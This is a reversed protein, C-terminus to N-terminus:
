NIIRVVSKDADLAIEDGTQINQTATRTGVVCPIALERAIIATHSLIGGEDTVIGSAKQCALLMRPQTSETILIAGQPMQQILEDINTATLSIKYAVGAVKGPSATTGHLEDVQKPSPNYLKAFTNSAENGVLMRTENNDKQLLFAHQRQTLDDVETGNIVEDITMFEADPGSSNIAQSHVLETLNICSNIFDLRLRGIDEILKADNVIDLESTTFEETKFYIKYADSLLDAAIRLNEIRPTRDLRASRSMIKNAESLLNAFFEPNRLQKAGVDGLQRYEDSGVFGKLGGNDYYLFTDSGGYHPFWISASLLKDLGDTFIHIYGM